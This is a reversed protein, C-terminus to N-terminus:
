AVSMCWTGVNRKCNNAVKWLRPESSYLESRRQLILEVGKSDGEMRAKLRALSLWLGHGRHRQTSRKHTQKFGTLAQLVRRFSWRGGRSRLRPSPWVVRPRDVWAHLSSDARRGCRLVNRRVGDRVGVGM